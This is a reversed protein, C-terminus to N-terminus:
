DDSDGPWGGPPPDAQEGTERPCRPPSRHLGGRRYSLSPNPSTSGRELTSRRECWPSLSQECDLTPKPVGTRRSPPPARSVVRASRLSRYRSSAPSEMRARVGAVSSHPRAWSHSDALREVGGLRMRRWTTPVGHLRWLKPGFVAPIAYSERDTSRTRARVESTFRYPKVLSTCM